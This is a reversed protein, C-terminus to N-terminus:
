YDGTTILARANKARAYVDVGPPAYTVRNEVTSSMAYTASPDPAGFSIAAVGHNVQVVKAAAGGVVVQTWSGPTLDFSAM